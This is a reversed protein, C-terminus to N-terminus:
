PIYPELYYDTGKWIKYSHSQLYSWTLLHRGIVERDYPTTSTTDRVYNSDIVDLGDSKLEVVIATHTINNNVGENFTFLIDGPKATALNTEANGNMTSYSSPLTHTGGDLRHQTESRYLILDAFFKCQGGRGYTGYYGYINPSVWFSAPAGYKPYCADGYDYTAWESAIDCGYAVSDSVTNYASWDSNLYNWNSVCNGQYNTKDCGGDYSPRLAYFCELVVARRANSALRAQSETAFVGISAMVIAFLLVFVSIRKM